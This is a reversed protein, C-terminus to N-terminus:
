EYLAGSELDQKMDSSMWRELAFAYSIREDVSEAGVIFAKEILEAQKTKLRENEQTVRALDARAESLQMELAHMFARSEGDPEFCQLFADVQPTAEADAGATGVSPADHGCTCGPNPYHKGQEIWVRWACDLLHDGMGFPLESPAPQSEPTMATLTRVLRLILKPSVSPLLNPM